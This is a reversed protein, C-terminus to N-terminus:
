LTLTHSLSTFLSYLTCNDATNTKHKHQQQLSPSGRVRRQYWQKGNCNEDGDRCGVLIKVIELHEYLVATHLPSRGNINDVGLINAGRKVLLKVVSTQGTSVASNLFTKGHYRDEIDLGSDLLVEVVKLNGKICAIDFAEVKDGHYDGIVQKDTLINRLSRHYGQIACYFIAPYRKKLIFIECKLKWFFSGRKPMVINKKGEVVKPAQFPTSIDGLQHSFYCINFSENHFVSLWTKCVSLLNELNQFPVRKFIDEILELPLTSFGDCERTNNDNNMLSM